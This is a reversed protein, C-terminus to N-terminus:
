PFVSGRGAISCFDALAERSWCSPLSLGSIVFFVPMRFSHIFTALHEFFRSSQLDLYNIATHLVLGLLLMVARLRDLSHYPSLQPQM